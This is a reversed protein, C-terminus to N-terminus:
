PGKEILAIGRWIRTTSTRDAHFGHTKLQAIFTKRSLPFREQQEEVWHQYAQWLDASGCWARPHLECCATIFAQLPDNASASPDDPPSTKEQHNNTVPTDAAPAESAIEAQKQTLLTYLAQTSMTKPHDAGLAQSRIQLTREAFTHAEAINGQQQRFIALDYLTTATDPHQQGLVEARISLAKQYLAEAETDNHHHRALNALGNLSTAINPHQLEQTQEMLHLARQYLPEAEVYKGQDQYLNALNNYAQTLDPHDPGQAQELMHLARLYLPEAETYKGQDHYLLALNSLTQALLPHHPSLVQELIHLARQYLPEAEAYKGQDWYLAALNNLSTAVDMHDPGQTRERIHLARLYLPEAEAYKGQSWYLLALNNLSAAGDTHDPGLTHERIHLTRLYLPEAETYKSQQWYLVALYNLTRAIDPHYDGHIQELTHLAQLYLPEAEAYRGRARLYQAAKYALSALTVSPELTNATRQLSLLAHPLLREAQQHKAQETTPLIEPFLADIDNIARQSWQEQEAEQMTDLLVAQVLRHLSLTRTEAQRQVLSLSRLVALMQDFQTPDTAMGALEPGLHSAGAIFLEEPIEEAYLLACVRLVDAAACNERQVRAMSLQFTAKVSQPHDAAPGGRRALLRNRQQEYNHLYGSLSCGTEEIYAGAQDLALPLYGLLAVLKEAATYEDPLRTAFQQVHLSTAEPGLIRARRLLLLKGEEHEMSTLDTGRALTGLAQNRTTILIAGQRTPPLFRPLLELDELNDWILLWQDRTSLWQQVLAVVQQQDKHMRDPLQLVDAIRLLSSVIQEETEAAVWFVARYELAYRYAYELAIQTKGVGGLGHLASSQTLAVIHDAGIQTHLTALVEERGTFFPNRAIPVSWYPTPATMSAELLQRSEQDNLHLHRTLEVVIAKSAPLFDGLEWRSIANRHVGIATALQQQTLHRRKRFSNLLTGFSSIGDVTMGM